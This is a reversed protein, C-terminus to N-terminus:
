ETLQTAMRYALTQITQLKRISIVEGNMAAQYARMVPLPEFWEELESRMEPIPWIAKEKSLRLSTIDTDHKREKGFEPMARRSVQPPLSQALRRKLLYRGTLIAPELAFSGPVCMVKPYYQRMMDIQLRRDDLVARPLSLCFRAYARNLFPTAVGFWYDCLMSQFYTFHRQRGWMAFLRQQQYWSGSYSHKVGAIEDALQELAGDIPVKFLLKLEEVKWYAWSAPLMYYTRQDPIPYAENQFQVDFGALHDGLFGSIIKGPPERRLDNLFPFQYMGHFHMASGFLDAWQRVHDEFYREGLGISKWPLGLARAIQQSYIGEKSRQVGWTYTRINMGAGAGVAAILRSDLGSSLPVIWEAQASLVKLIAKQSLEYMEDVLDGWGTQWRNQTAQITDCSLSHPESEDWYTVSDPQTVKMNKYLTWDSLFNGHILLTVVGPLFFDNATYQNAAVVAPELTSAIWNQAAKAYFVPISGLWDNWFISQQGDSRIYLLIVRGDWPLRFDHLSALGSFQDQIWEWSYDGVPSGVLALLSGDPLRHTCDEMNGRGWLHLLTDGLEVTYLQLGPFYSLARREASEARAVQAESGRWVITFGIARNM